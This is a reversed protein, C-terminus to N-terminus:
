GLRFRGDEAKKVKGSNILEAFAKLGAAKRVEAGRVAATASKPAEGVKDTAALHNLLKRSIADEEAQEAREITWGHGSLAAIFPAAASGHVGRAKDFEVLFRAGQDQVYDAPRSLKLLLNMADEPKSHGRAGGMRNSHHALLVAKGRRRLSLLWEQAPQWATPDKEGEPDFLCSRNDPIILDAAEIYPELASQGEPTDLRALYGRQWDAGVVSLNGNPTAALMGCLTRFRSQLEEGSMEGDVYLVRCPEPARFGLAEVNASAVLALTQLLWTKGVGRPAYVEGLHGERFVAVEGRCLLARRVPFCAKLLEDLTYVILASERAWVDRRFDDATVIPTDVPVIGGRCLDGSTMAEPDLASGNRKVEAAPFAM